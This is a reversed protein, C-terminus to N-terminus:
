PTVRLIWGKTAPNKDLLSKLRKKGVRLRDRVTNESVNTIESIEKINYEHVYRLRLAVQQKDSLKSVLHNIYCRLEGASAAAHTDIFPSQPEPLLRRLQQRRKKTHIAKLTTRIAIRTAWFELSSEGRYDKLASLIKVMVSQTLDEAWPGNNVMYSIISRNKALLMHVVTRQARPDGEAAEKALRVEEERTMKPQPSAARDTKLQATMDNYYHQYTAFSISKETTM